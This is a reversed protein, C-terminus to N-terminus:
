AFFFFTITGRGGRGAPAESEPWRTGGAGTAPLMRLWQLRGSGVPGPSRGALAQNHDPGNVWGSEPGAGKGRVLRSM